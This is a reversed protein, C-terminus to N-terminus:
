TLEGLKGFLVTPCLVDSIVEGVVVVCVSVGSVATVGVVESVDLVAVVCETVVAAGVDKCLM